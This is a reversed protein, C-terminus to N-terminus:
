VKETSDASGHYVVNKEDARYKYFATATRDDYPDDVNVIYQCFNPLYYQEDYLFSQQYGWLLIMKSLM